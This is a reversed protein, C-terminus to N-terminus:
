TVFKNSEYKKQITKNVPNLLLNYDSFTYAELFVVKKIEVQFRGDGWELLGIM